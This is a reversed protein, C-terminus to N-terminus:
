QLFLLILLLPTQKWILINLYLHHFFLWLKELTVAAGDHIEARDLYDLHTWM